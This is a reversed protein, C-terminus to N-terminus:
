EHRRWSFEVREDLEGRGWLTRSQASRGDGEVVIEIATERDPLQATLQLEMGFEDFRVPVEREFSLGGPQSETWLPDDEQDLSFAHPVNSFRLSVWAKATAADESVADATAAVVADRRVVRTVPVILVGWAMLFLLWQQLPKGRM